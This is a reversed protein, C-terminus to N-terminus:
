GNPGHLTYELLLREYADEPLSVRGMAGLLEAESHETLPPRQLTTVADEFTATLLTTQLIRLLALAARFIEAEGACLVRDWIRCATSLPLSRSFITLLWPVLYLDTPVELLRLRAALAPLQETLLTEFLTVAPQVQLAACARLMPYGSLLASLCACALQAERVHVLLVAALFAMGQRYALGDQHSCFTVLVERLVERMGSGEHFLGSSTLTRSLDTDILRISRAEDDDEHSDVDETVEGKDEEEAQKSAAAMARIRGHAVERLRAYETVSPELPAHMSLLLPWARRRHEVPIGAECLARLEAASPLSMNTAMEGELASNTEGADGEGGAEKPLPPAAHLTAEWAQHARRGAIRRCLTAAREANQLM